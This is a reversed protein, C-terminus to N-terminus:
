ALVIKDEQEKVKGEKFLWGIGLLVEETSINAVKAIEAVSLSKGAGALAQYVDGARFGVNEANIVVATKKAITKKTACARKVTTKKETAAKTAAVKKEAM